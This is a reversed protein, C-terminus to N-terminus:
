ADNIIEMMNDTVNFQQIKSISLSYHAEIIESPVNNRILKPFQDCISYMEIKSSIFSETKQLNSARNIFKGIKKFYLTLANFDHKLKSHILEHFYSLSQGKDQDASNIQLHILFLKQSTIDLQDLSNIKIENPGSTTTTKVELAIKNLTFDKKGGEPGAWYNIVDEINHNKILLNSLVYLEGWLGILEARSLPNDHNKLFSSWSHLEKQIVSFLNLGKYKGTEFAVSKIVIAFKEKNEESPEKYTCTLRKENNTYNEIKLELSPLNLSTPILDLCQDQIFFILENKQNKSVWYREDKRYLRKGAPYAGADIGEWPDDRFFDVDSMMTMRIKM